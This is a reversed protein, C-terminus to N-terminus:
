KVDNGDHELRSARSKRVGNRPEQRCSTAEDTAEVRRTHSKQKRHRKATGPQGHAEQRGSVDGTDTMVEGDRSATAAFLGGNRPGLHSRHTEEKPRAVPGDGQWDRGLILYYMNKSMRLDFMSDVVLVLGGERGQGPRKELLSADVNSAVQQLYWCRCTSGAWSQGPMWLHQIREYTPREVRQAGGAKATM